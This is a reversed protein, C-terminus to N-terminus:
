DCRRMLRGGRMRLGLLLEEQKWGVARHSHSRLHYHSPVHREQPHADGPLVSGDWVAGWLWQQALLPLEAGCHEHPVRHPPLPSGWPTCTPTGTPPPCLIATPLEMPHSHLTGHPLRPAATPHSSTPQKPSPSGRGGWANFWSTPMPAASVNITYFGWGHPPPTLTQRPPPPSTGSIPAPPASGSRRPHKFPVWPHQAIANTPNRPFLAVWPSSLPWHCGHTCPSCHGKHPTSSCHSGCGDPGGTPTRPRPQPHRKPASLM